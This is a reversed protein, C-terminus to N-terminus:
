EYCQNRPESFVIERRKKLEPPGQFHFNNKAASSRSTAECDEAQSRLDEM